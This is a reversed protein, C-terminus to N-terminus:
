FSTTVVDNQRKEVDMLRHELTLHLNNNIQLVFKPSKSLKAHEKSDEVIGNSITNATLAFTDQLRLLAM